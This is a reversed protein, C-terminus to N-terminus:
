ECTATPCLAPNGESASSLPKGPIDFSAFTRLYLNDWCEVVVASLLALDGESVTVDARGTVGDRWCSRVDLHELAPTDKIVDGPGAFGMIVRGDTDRAYAYDFHAAPTVDIAPKDAAIAINKAESDGDYQHVVHLRGRDTGIGHQFADEMDLTLEGDSRRAGGGVTTPSYTGFLLATMGFASPVDDCTPEGTVDSDRGAFLCYTFTGGDRRVEYRITYHNGDVNPIPGWVRVNHERKTPPYGKGISDVFALIQEVTANTQDASAAMVSYYESPAGVLANANADASKM